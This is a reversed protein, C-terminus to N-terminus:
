RKRKQNKVTAEIYGIDKRPISSILHFYEGGERCCRELNNNRIGLFTLYPLRQLLGEPFEEIRPCECITLGELATLGDMGDPLSKLRSCTDVSLHRLNVLSGLNSPLVVLDSCGHIFLEELSAPLPPIVLLVDCQRINLRELLPLPLIQDEESLSGIGELKKCYSITLSRLHPLCRFEELPWRVINNCNFIGLEEVSSLCDQVGLGLKSEKFISLSGDSGLTDLSRQSQQGDLPTMADILSQIDGKINLHVLSPLLGLSMSLSRDSSPETNNSHYVRLDTLTPSEMLIELKNCGQITLVELQPFLVLSNVERASNEVWRELKPLHMLEMAKLKPFIQLSTSPALPEMDINKCLTTLSELRWLYLHELSPSLWVIPLDKCRRCDSMILERLCQFMEPQRMWHSINLGRYGQVMLTKLKSHPVLSELVHENSAEDVTPEEYMDHNFCGWDLLLENLNHKQHLNAKSGYKVKWLNYLELRNGLQQLGELEEIRHGDKTDVVFTTLTCLNHLLNLKPPMRKLSHCGLLYIHHLKKMNCMGEPLCRLRFCGNLRLSLLNYLMCISDPLSVIESDSLDLYRLHSTNILQKHVISVDSSKFCLARSPMLKAEVLDKDSSPPTLLTRLYITDASLQTIKNLQDHGSIHLHYISNIPVKRQILEEVTACENAVDKALDHMLDHMKCGTSEQKSRYVHSYHARRLIKFDQLFSRWILEDFIFEAKQVLSMTREEHIYGNAMWLQILIDKEIEYDKPFVACFAFCQKMEPSLHKYSLKLISMVEDKGRSTDSINCDAIAEWDQTQQKSNMLGGMTKLALPLGKCKNVIRRGIVILEELMKVEKSFAKKSFLEWSDHESLSVLGYPPCTGMISAVRRSRSTVVIMSGSGGLSCLLPKLDDEWKRQVENWVDDLVLLFRKRGIVEQLRGRLLEVNEPLGCRRKTALEIVSRLLPTAEFNESVCHWMKLQFHKQVRSDNYVMKALTTKGLGGMGIIPLVQVKRRNQQDLLLKVLAEKDDDRGYVEESKDLLSHTQRYPVHQIEVREALGFKSLETALEDIKDLVDKLDRSAKYRLVLRDKSTFNSLLKSAISQNGQAERRLAEYQFDDLVDDAKYAVAKLAKMWTRIALNTESKAEADPLLSQVYLLLRELRERDDDVGWMRTISQVLEDAAKGVVGQVVPLLLWEAAM